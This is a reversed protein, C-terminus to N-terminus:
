CRNLFLNKCSISIERNQKRPVVGTSAGFTHALTFIRFNVGAGPFRVGFRLFCNHSLSVIRTIMINEFVESYKESNNLQKGCLGWKYCGQFLFSKSLMTPFPSIAPLWYKRRKGRHKRRM